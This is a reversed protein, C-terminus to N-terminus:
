KMCLMVKLKFDDYVTKDGLNEFFKGSGYRINYQTRDVIINAYFWTGDDKKQVIANFELPNTIEKITLMGRVVATGKEFPDSGTIVLKAVPFKEVSFFDESRLHKELMQTNNSEEITNMDINFEGATIKNGKWTLWGDKLKITGAHQGLVKEGLWQLKTKSTDAVLKEQGSVSNFSLLTFGIIIITNKM